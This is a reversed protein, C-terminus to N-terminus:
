MKHGVGPARSQCQDHDEVQEEGGVGIIWVWSRYATEGRETWRHLRRPYDQRRGGISIRIEKTLRYVRRKSLGVRWGRSSNLVKV